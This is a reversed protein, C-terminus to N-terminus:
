KEQFFNFQLFTKIMYKGSEREEANLIVSATGVTGKFIYAFLRQQSQSVM